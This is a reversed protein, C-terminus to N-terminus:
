KRELTTNSTPCVNVPCPICREKFYIGVEKPKGEKVIKGSCLLSTVDSIESVEERHTILLVTTGQEKLAQIVSIINDLALIDIGSDPEDLIALKPEMAFVAALEIRKREGGSLKKDVQRDLYDKPELMVNALARRIKEEDPQKMGVAIYDHVTLGEFRAPEQWALTIGLRARQTTNLSTIDQGFFFIKGKQPIYSCCGILLYALTTKGAANSGLISHITGERVTLSLNNLIDRGDFSLRIDKLELIVKQEKM